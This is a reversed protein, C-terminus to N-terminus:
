NLVMGSFLELLSYIEKLIKQPLIFLSCWYIQISLLVSQILQVWHEKLFIYPLGLNLRSIMLFGLIFCWVRGFILNWGLFITFITQPLKSQPLLRDTGCFIFLDHAFSVHNLKLACCRQYCSFRGSDIKKQLIAYFEEMVLLFLRLGMEGQFFGDSASNVVVSFWGTAALQTIWLIYFQPFEMAEMIDFLLDWVVTM